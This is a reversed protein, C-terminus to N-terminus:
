KVKEISFPESVDIWQIEPDHKFWTMQRKAYQTNGLITKEIMERESIKKQIFLLPYLYEFGLNMIRKDSLGSKKLKKVENVLGDQYMKKIRKTIKNELFEKPAFLGIKVFEYKVPSTKIKPVKGLATAIEIARIVRVKNKTDINKARAIDLKKLIELLEIESKKELEKRLKPNPKVEPLVINNVVADIYFGTGGCIIPTKGKNVIEAIASDTLKKYKAVTFKNKPNAFDLLHHPVGKMEKETIKGSGIELGKYIQRSDASIIEGNLQKAIKVAFNSKGTATQGLIVIVKPKFM